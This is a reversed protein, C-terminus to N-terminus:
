SQACKLPHIHAGGLTSYKLNHESRNYRPDTTFSGPWTGAEAGALLNSGQQM